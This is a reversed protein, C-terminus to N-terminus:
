RMSSLDAEYRQLSRYVLLLRVLIWLVTPSLAVGIILAGIHWNVVNRPAIFLTFVACFLLSGTMALIGPPLLFRLKQAFRLELWERSGDDFPKGCKRCIREGSGLRVNYPWFNRRFVGHCHPCEYSTWRLFALFPLPSVTRPLGPLPMARFLFPDHDLRIAPPLNADNKQSLVM